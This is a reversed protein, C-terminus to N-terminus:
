SGREEIGIRVLRYASYVAGALFLASCLYVVPMDPGCSWTGGGKAAPGACLPLIVFYLIGLASTSGVLSILWPLAPSCGSGEPPM